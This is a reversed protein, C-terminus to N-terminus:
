KDVRPPLKVISLWFNEIIKVVKIFNDLDVPKTIYCNANNQYTEILDEEVNSTTLIVVPITKLNEDDKIEKLVEKGQKKPLNLDLIILDPRSAQAYESERRLLQMAKEGNLAVHIKNHIRAEKFVEQVLRVDAPNDEVLLIEIDEGLSPKM